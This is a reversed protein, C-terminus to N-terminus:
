LFAWRDTWGAAARAIWVEGRWTPGRKAPCLLAAAAQYIRVGLMYSFHWAPQAGGGSTMKTMGRGGCLLCSAQVLLWRRDCM